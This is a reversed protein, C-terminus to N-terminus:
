EHWSKGRTNIFEDDQLKRGLKDNVAIRSIDEELGLCTLALLYNGISSGAEGSEINRLARVGTGMKWAMVEITLHRRLRALRINKGVGILISKMNSPLVFKEEELLDEKFSHIYDLLYDEPRFWEGTTRLGSFREHLEAEKSRGGKITGLLTLKESNSGQLNNLRQKPSRSYGIKIAGTESQIFYIM